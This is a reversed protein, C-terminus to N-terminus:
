AKKKQEDPVPSDSVKQEAAIRDNEEKDDKIRKLTLREADAQIQRIYNNASDDNM